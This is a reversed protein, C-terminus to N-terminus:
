RYLGQSVRRRHDDAGSCVPPVGPLLWARVYRWKSQSLPVGSAFISDTQSHKRGDKEEASKPCAFKLDSRRASCRVAPHLQKWRNQRPSSGFRTIRHACMLAVARRVLSWGALARQPEGSIGKRCRVLTVSFAWVSGRLSLASLVCSGIAYAGSGQENSHAQRRGRGLL